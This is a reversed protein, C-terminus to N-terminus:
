YDLDTARTLTLSMTYKDGEWTHSDQNIYFVRKIDLTPIIIYAGRGTRMSTIGIAKITLKKEAKKNERLLSKALSQIKDKKKEDSESKFVQVVGIKQELSKDM